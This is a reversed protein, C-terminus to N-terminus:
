LKNHKKFHDVSIIGPGKYLYIILLLLVVASLLLEPRTGYHESQINFIVAAILIPIQLIISLRTLLGIVILSGGFIHVGSVIYALMLPSFSFSSDRILDQLHTLDFMFNIGRVLLLLGLAARFLLYFVNSFSSITPFPRIDDM